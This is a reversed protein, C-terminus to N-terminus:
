YDFLNWPQQRPIHAKINMSEKKVPHEFALAYARLALSKGPGTEEEGYKYDGWLPFGMKSLQVRIQHPKGTVLDIEILSYHASQKLTTYSLVAPKAGSKKSGFAKTKNTKSDKKLFHEYTAEEPTRGHVIAWYTKKLQHERILQSIRSAAKSTKTLVMLGSVPRDLRHTLGLYVNGPKNYAKKLYQKCLETLDVNNTKDAQSLLGAPKDIILLHNDEYVIEINPTTGTWKKSTRKQKPPVSRKPKM